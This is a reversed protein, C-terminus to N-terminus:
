AFYINNTFLDAIFNLISINFNDIWHYKFATTGPAAMLRKTGMLQYNPVLSIRNEKCSNHIVYFIIIAFVNEGMLIFSWRHEYSFENM